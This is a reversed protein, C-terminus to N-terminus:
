RCMAAFPAYISSPSALPASMSITGWSVSRSLRVVCVLLQVGGRLKSQQSLFANLALAVIEQQEVSMAEASVDSNDLIQQLADNISLPLESVSVMKLRAATFFSRLSFKCCSFRYKNEVRDRVVVLSGVAPADQGSM